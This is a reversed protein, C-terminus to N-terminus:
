YLSLLMFIFRVAHFSEPTCFLQGRSRNCDKRTYAFLSLDHTREFPPITLGDYSSSYPLTDLSPHTHFWFLPFPVFICFFISICSHRFYSIAFSFGFELELTISATHGQETRMIWFHQAIRSVGFSLRNLPFRRVFSFNDDAHADLSDTRQLLGLSVLSVFAM